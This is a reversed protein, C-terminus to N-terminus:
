EAVYSAHLQLLKVLQERLRTMKQAIKERSWAWQHSQVRKHHEELYQDFLEPQDSKPEFQDQELSTQEMLDELFWGLKSWIEERARELSRIQSSIASRYLSMPETFPLHVMTSGHSNLDNRIIQMIDTMDQLEAITRQDELKGGGIEGLAFLVAVGLLFLIIYSVATTARSNPCCTCLGLVETTSNAMTTVIETTKTIVIQVYSPSHYFLHPCRMIVPTPIQRMDIECRGDVLDILPPLVISWGLTQSIDFRGAIPLM